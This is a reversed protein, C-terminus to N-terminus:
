VNIIAFLMLASIGVPFCTNMVKALWNFVPHCGSYFQSDGRAIAKVARIASSAQARHLFVGSIGSLGLSLWAIQLLWVLDPSEGILSTKFTISFALAATSVTIIRDTYRDLSTIKIDNMEKLTSPTMRTNFSTM